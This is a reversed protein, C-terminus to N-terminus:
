FTKIAEITSDPTTSIADDYFTIGQFEGVRQLRHPLGEFTKITQQINAVPIQLAIGIAIALSINQLNHDGLLLRDQTSFLEQLDHTFYGHDRSTMGGIGYTHLDPYHDQLNFEEATKALVFRQEANTLINFKADYYANISGHWDMHVPFLHGLVAISTQPRFDELM